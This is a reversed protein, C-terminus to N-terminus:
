LPLMVGTTTHTPVIGLTFGNEITPCANPMVVCLSAGPQSPATVTVEFFVGPDIGGGCGTTCSIDNQGSPDGNNVPDGRTCSYRNWSGPDKPGASAMYQDATILDAMRVPM